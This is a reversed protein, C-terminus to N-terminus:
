AAPNPLDSDAVIWAASALTLTIVTGAWTFHEPRGWVIPGWALVAFGLMMATNLRAALTAKINLV